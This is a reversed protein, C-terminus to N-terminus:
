IEFSCATFLVEILERPGLVRMLKRDFAFENLVEEPLQDQLVIVNM